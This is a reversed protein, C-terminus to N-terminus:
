DNFQARWKAINAHPLKIPIKQLNENTIDDLNTYYKLGVDTLMERARNDVAIIHAACNMQMAFAGSHLRTGIYDYGSVFCHKLSSVSPTLIDEKEIGLEAAYEFDLYGQPWFVCKGYVQNAYEWIAKDRKHNRFGYHFVIVARSRQKGVVQYEVNWLTPCSTNLVNYIGLGKLKQATYEDRVAHLYETNLVKRLWLRSLMTTYDSYSQWGCGMLIPKSNIENLGYFQWQNFKVIDPCLLNTGCVFVQKCQNLKFKAYTNIRCHSSHGVKFKDPFMEDIIDRCDNVIIEEGLSSSSFSTDIIGIIPHTVGNGIQSELDEEFPRM